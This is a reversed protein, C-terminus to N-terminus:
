NWVSFSKMALRSLLHYKKILIIRNTFHVHDQNRAFLLTKDTNMIHPFQLSPSNTLLTDHTLLKNENRENKHYYYTAGINIYGSYDERVWSVAINAM